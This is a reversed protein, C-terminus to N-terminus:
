TTEEIPTVTYCGVGDLISIVHRTAGDFTPPNDNTWKVEDQIELENFVGQIVHENTSHIIKAPHIHSVINGQLNMEDVIEGTIIDIMKIDTEFIGGANLSSLRFPSVEIKTGDGMMFALIEIYLCFTECQYASIFGNEQVVDKVYTEGCTMFGMMEYFQINEFKHYGALPLHVVEDNYCRKMPANLKHLFDEESYFYPVLASHVIDYVCLIYITNGTGPDNMKVYIQPNLGLAEIDTYNFYDIYEALKQFDYTLQIFSDIILEINFREIAMSLEETPIEVNTPMYYSLVQKYLWHASNKFLAVAPVNTSLINYTNPFIICTDPTEPGPMLMSISMSNIPYGGCTGSCQSSSDSDNDSDGGPNGGVVEWGKNGFMKLEGTEPNHWLVNTHQPQTVSTVIKDTIKM